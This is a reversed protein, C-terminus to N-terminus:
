SRALDDFDAASLERADGDLTRYSLPDMTAGTSSHM